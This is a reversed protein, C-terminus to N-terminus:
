GITITMSRFDVTMAEWGYQDALIQLDDISEVDIFEETGNAIVKFTMRIAGKEREMIIIDYKINCKQRM